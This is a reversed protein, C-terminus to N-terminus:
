NLCEIVVTRLGSVSETRWACAIARLGLDAALEARVSAVHRDKRITEFPNPADVNKEWKQVMETWGRVVEPELSEDMDDLAKQTRVMEPVAREVKRRM